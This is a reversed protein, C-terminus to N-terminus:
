EMYNSHQYQEEGREHIRSYHLLVNLSVLISVDPLYRLVGINRISVHFSLVNGVIKWNFAVKELHFGAPCAQGESCRPHHVAKGTVDANLLKIM